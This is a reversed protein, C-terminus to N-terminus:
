KQLRFSMVANLAQSKSSLPLVNQLQSLENFCFLVVRFFGLFFSIFSGPAEWDPARGM